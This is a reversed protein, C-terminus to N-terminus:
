LYRISISNDKDKFIKITGNDYSINQNTFNEFYDDTLKFRKKNIELYLTYPINYDISYKWKLEFGNKFKGDEKMRRFYIRETKKKYNTSIKYCIDGELYLPNEWFLSGEETLFSPLVPSYVIFTKSSKILPNNHSITLEANHMQFIVIYLWGTNFSFPM